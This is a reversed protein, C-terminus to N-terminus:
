AIQSEIIETFIGPINYGAASLQKPIISEATMGPTTNIELFYPDDDKIIFDIRVIGKCNLYNYILSCHENLKKQLNGPIRAPTIEDAMGASYKAELDFFEKKSVIETIPLLYEKKNTKIVGCSVETGKIFEEIIVQKESDEEFAKDIALRLDEKSHVKSIGYSSGSNNPKVFCPLGVTEIILDENIVTKETLLISKATIIGQKELITKCAHKNFTLTSTFLDCTSYPIDILEFYGQLIGNEGPTGHITIYAFDFTIKKENYIFSFDNKDIPFKGTEGLKVFWEDKTIIVLYPNFTNKDIYDYIQGASKLSINFESSFGGGIIAIRKKNM